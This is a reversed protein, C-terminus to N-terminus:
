GKLDASLVSTRCCRFSILQQQFKIMYIIFVFNYLNHISIRFYVSVTNTINAGVGKDHLLKLVEVQDAAAAVHM